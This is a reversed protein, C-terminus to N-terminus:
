RVLHWWVTLRKGGSFSTLRYPIVRAVRCLSRSQERSPIAQLPAVQSSQEDISKPASTKLITSAASHAQHLQLAMSQLEPSQSGSAPNKSSPKVFLRPHNTSPKDIMINSSKLYTDMVLEHPTVGTPVLCCIITHMFAWANSGKPQRMM